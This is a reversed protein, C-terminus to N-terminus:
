TRAQTGIRELAAVKQPELRSLEELSMNTLLLHERTLVTALETQLNPRSM